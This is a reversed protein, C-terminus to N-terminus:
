SELIMRLKTTKYGKNFLKTRDIKLRRLFDKNPSNKTEIKINKWLIWTVM